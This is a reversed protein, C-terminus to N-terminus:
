SRFVSVVIFYGHLHFAILKFEENHWMLGLGPLKFTMKVSKSM